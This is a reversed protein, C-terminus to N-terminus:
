HITKDGSSSFVLPVFLKVLEQSISEYAEVQCPEVKEKVFSDVSDFSVQLHLIMDVPYRMAIENIKNELKEFWGDIGATDDIYVSIQAM